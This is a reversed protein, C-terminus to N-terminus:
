CVRINEIYGFRDIVKPLNRKDPRRRDQWLMLTNYYPTVMPVDTETLDARDRITPNFRSLLLTKTEDDSNINDEDTVNGSKRTIPSFDYKISLNEIKPIHTETIPPLM